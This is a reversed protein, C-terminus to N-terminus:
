TVYVKGDSTEIMWAKGSAALHLQLEERSVNPPECISQAMVTLNKVLFVPLAIMNKAEM